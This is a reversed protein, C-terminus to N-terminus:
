LDRLHFSSAHFHPLHVTSLRQLLLMGGVQRLTGSGLSPPLHGVPFYLSLLRFPHCQLGLQVPLTATRVTLQPRLLQRGLKTGRNHQSSFSHRRRCRGAATVEVM